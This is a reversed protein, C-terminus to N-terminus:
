AAATKDVRPYSGSFTIPKTESKPRGIFGAFCRSRRPPMWDKDEMILKQLGARGKRRRVLAALLLSRGVGVKPKGESQSQLDTM